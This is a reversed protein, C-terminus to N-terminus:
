RVPWPPTERTTWLFGLLAVISLALLAAATVYIVLYSGTVDHLGGSLLPGLGAGVSNGLVLWGFVTGFRDPPAIRRVLLAVITARTGLPLFVFAVYGYALLRSPWAELGLLSLTGVLSLSLSVIAAPPAGFRDAALGALARGSTSLVGGVALMAAAERAPFGLGEFYLVHQVTVLYGVLPANVFVFAIAWFPFSRVIHGIDPDARRAPPGPADAGRRGLRVPYIRLALPVLALVIVLYGGLTARWGFAAIAAQAPTALVYGAMSGSLAIGTAFGRRRVYVDAIVSVQTVIGTLGVGVGAGLGLAAVFLPLSPALVAGALGLAAAALGLVVVLRPSWRDVLHGAVPGLAASVLWLLTVASAIAARSGGFEALLAPFFVPFTNAIGSVVLM